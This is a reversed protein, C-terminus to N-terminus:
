FYIDKKNAFKISEWLTTVLQFFDLYEDCDFAIQPDKGRITIYPSYPVTASCWDRKETSLSDLDVLFLNKNKDQM